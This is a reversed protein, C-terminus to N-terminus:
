SAVVLKSRGNNRLKSSIHQM